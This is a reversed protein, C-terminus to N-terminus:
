KELMFNPKNEMLFCYFCYGSHADIAPFLFSSPVGEQATLIKAVINKCCCCFCFCFCFVGLSKEIFYLGAKLFTRHHKLALTRYFNNLQDKVKLLFKLHTKPTQTM